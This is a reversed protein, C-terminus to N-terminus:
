TALIALAPPVLSVALLWGAVQPIDLEAGTWIKIDLAIVELDNMMAGWYCLQPAYRVGPIEGAGEWRSYAWGSEIGFGPKVLVVPLSM